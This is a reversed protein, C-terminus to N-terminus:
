KLVKRKKLKKSHGQTHRTNEENKLLLNGNVTVDSKNWFKYIQILDGRERRHELTSLNIERLIDQYHLGALEPVLKTAM